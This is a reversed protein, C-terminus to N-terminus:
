GNKIWKRISNDSVNYKKGTGVYGLKLVNKILIHLMPRDVTRQELNYCKSCLKSEKKIKKDCNECCNEKKNGGLKSNGITIDKKLSDYYCKKCKKSNNNKINGCKCYYSKEINTLSINKSKYNDTFTHCNSCLIQLNNLLNNSRNGDVHHLEIPILGGLWTTGQCCECQHKKYGEKILRYKFNNTNAIYIDKKFYTTIDKIKNSFKTKIQLDLLTLYKNLTGFKCNLNECIEQKTKSENIWKIIDNKRKLIDIRANSM